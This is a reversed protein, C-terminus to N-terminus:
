IKVKLPKIDVEEDETIKSRILNVEKRLQNIEFQTFQNFDHVIDIM